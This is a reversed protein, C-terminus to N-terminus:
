VEEKDYAWLIMRDGELAVSLARKFAREDAIEALEGNLKYRCHVFMCTGARPPRCCMQLYSGM